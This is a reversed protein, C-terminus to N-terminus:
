QIARSTAACTGDHCDSWDWVLSRCDVAGRFGKGKEYVNSVEKKPSSIPYAMM